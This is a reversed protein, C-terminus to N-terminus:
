WQEELLQDLINQGSFQPKTQTDEPIMNKVAYRIAAMLHDKGPKPENIITGDKEEM